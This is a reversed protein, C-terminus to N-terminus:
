RNFKPQWRAFVVGGLLCVCVWGCLVFAKRCAEYTTKFDTASSDLTDLFRITSQIVVVNDCIKIFFGKWGSVTSTNGALKRLQVWIHYHM